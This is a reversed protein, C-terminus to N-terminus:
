RTIMLWRMPSKKILTITLKKGGEGDVVESKCKEADVEQFLNGDLVKEGNPTTITIHETTITCTSEPDCTMEMFANDKQDRWSYLGGAAKNMTGRESNAARHTATARDLISRNKTMEFMKQKQEPTLNAFISPDLGMSALNAVMEEPNAFVPIPAPTSAGLGLIGVNEPKFMKTEEGIKIAYWNKEASYAVVSGDKGNFEQANKLGQIRVMTGPALGQKQTSPDM